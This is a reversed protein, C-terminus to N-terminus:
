LNVVIKVTDVVLNMQLVIELMFDRTSKLKLESTEKQEDDKSDADTL